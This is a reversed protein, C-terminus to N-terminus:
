AANLFLHFMVQTVDQKMSDQTKNRLKSLTCDTFVPYTRQLTCRCFLSALIAFRAFRVTQSYKSIAVFRLIKFSDKASFVLRFDPDILMSYYVIYVYKRTHTYAYVHAIKKSKRMKLTSSPVVSKVGFFIVTKGPVVFTPGIQGVKM